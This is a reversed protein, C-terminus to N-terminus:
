AQRRVELRVRQRHVGFHELTQPLGIQEKGVLLVGVEMVHRLFVDQQEDEAIAVHENAHPLVTRETQSFGKMGCM